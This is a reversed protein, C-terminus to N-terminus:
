LKSKAKAILIEKHFNFGPIVAIIENVSLCPKNLLIYEESKEKTSFPKYKNLRIFILVRKDAESIITKWIHINPYYFKDGEFIEVGDETTFLPTKKSAKEWKNIAGKGYAGDWATVRTKDFYDVEIKDIPHFGKNGFDGFDILDGITFVEGDSLRKVSHINWYKLAHYLDCDGSGKSYLGNRTKKFIYAMKDDSHGSYFSLIEYDVEEVRKWFEPYADYFITGYWKTSKDACHIEGLTHEPYVKILKYQIM